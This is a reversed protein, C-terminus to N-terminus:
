REDEDLLRRGRRKVGGILPEDEPDPEAHAENLRELLGTNERRRIFDRLALSYLRSRTVGMERALADTEEALDRSISIGVKVNKM